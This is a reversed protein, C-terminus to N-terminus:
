FNYFLFVYNESKVFRWRVGKCRENIGEIRRILNNEYNKLKFYVPLISLGITCPICLLGFIISNRKPLLSDIYSNLDNIEKKFEHFSIYGELQKSYTTDFKTPIHNVHKNSIDRIIFRQEKKVMKNKFKKPFNRV